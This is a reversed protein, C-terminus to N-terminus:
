LHPNQKLDIVDFNSNHLCVIETQTFKEKSIIFCVLPFRSINNLHSEIWSDTSKLFENLKNDFDENHFVAESLLKTSLDKISPRTNKHKWIEKYYTSFIYCNLLHFDM